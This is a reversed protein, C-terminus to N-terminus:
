LQFGDMGNYARVWDGPPLADEGHAPVDLVDVAQCALFALLQQRPEEVQHVLVMVQLNPQLPLVRIVNTRPCM